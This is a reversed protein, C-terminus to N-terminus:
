YNMVAMYKENIRRQGSGFAGRTKKTNRKIITVRSTSFWGSTM